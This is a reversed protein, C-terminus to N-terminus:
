EDQTKKQELKVAAQLSEMQVRLTDNEAQVKQKEGLQTKLTGLDQELDKC